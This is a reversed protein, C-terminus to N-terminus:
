AAEQPPRCEARAPRVGQIPRQPPRPPEVPLQQERQGVHLRAGADQLDVGAAPRLRRGGLQACLQCAGGGAVAAGVELHRRLARAAGAGTTGGATKRVYAWASEWMRDRSGPRATTDAASHNLVVGMSAQHAMQWAHSTVKAKNDWSGTCTWLNM